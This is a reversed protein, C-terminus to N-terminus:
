RRNQRYLPSASGRPGRPMSNPYTTVSKKEACDRCDDAEPCARLRAHSIPEGCDQCVGFTGNEIRVLAAQLKNLRLADQKANHLALVTSVVVTARAEEGTEDSARIDEPRRPKKLLEDIREQVLKAAEERTM